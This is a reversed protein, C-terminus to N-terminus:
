QVNAPRFKIHICVHPCHLACHLAYQCTAAFVVGTLVLPGEAFKFGELAAQSVNVAVTLWGGFTHFKAPVVTFVRLPTVAFRQLIM